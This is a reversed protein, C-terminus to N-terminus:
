RNWYNIQNIIQLRNVHNQTLLNKANLYNGFAIIYDAIKADGTELLQKNVKILSESYRIQDNIEGILEETANLQQTLLAIQQKYQSLFFSKYNGRTREEINIKGYQLKRQHGDYIPVTVGFGFSTGFNKYPLYSM